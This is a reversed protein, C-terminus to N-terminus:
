AGVIMREDGVRRTVGHSDLHELLPIAWKRSLGFRDKFQPVTFRQWGSDALDRRLRELESAALVLGGPLRVLRDREVLYRVVGEVIQPKAGLQAAVEGPSPPALGGAAYREVVRRALDSEEGTLEAERGPLNVLDGAVALVGEAELWPLYVDALEASRGPLIRRVAEAKPIGRALRDQAFYDRLVRRARAAVRSFAAPALWREGHGQGAPVRLARGAAALATLDPAVEDPRAGLRRALAETGLGRQGAREV